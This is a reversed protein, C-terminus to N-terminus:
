QPQEDCPLLSQFKIACHAENDKQTGQFLLLKNPFGLIWLKTQGQLENCVQVTHGRQM